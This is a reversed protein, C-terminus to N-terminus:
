KLLRDLGPTPEGRYGKELEARIEDSLEHPYLAKRTDDRRKLRKYEEIDILVRMPRRYRTIFVPGRGAEDLYQGARHQFETATVSKPEM